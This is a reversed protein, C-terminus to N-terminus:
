SGNLSNIVENFSVGAKSIVIELQIEHIPIMPILIVRVVLVGANFTQATNGSMDVQMASLAQAQVLSTGYANLTNSIARKIQDSNMEQLAYILYDYLSTKIVNLIRRVSFWQLSSKESTLLQQEWLAIGQGTLTRFYNVQAQFMATAQGDDFTYRQKIAGNVVGRNLGAISFAQNAIRDTRACLAAVWGSPPTYVQISNTTDAQLLDPNFLGAYTTNKNLVVNRYEISRDWKQYAAPTDLIGTCDGRRECLSIIAAQTIPDAIGGNIVLNIKYLERNSFEEYAEAIDFSTPASGSTGVGAFSMVTGPGFASVDTSEVGPLLRVNMTDSFVNIQEEMQLQLGGASLKNGLTCVYNEDVTVQQNVVAQIKVNFEDTVPGAAVPSKTADPTINGKDVFTTRYPGNSVVLRMNSATTGKYVLYGTASDVADWTLVNSNGATGSTIVVSATSVETEGYPTMASVGYYVTGIPFPIVSAIDPDNTATVTGVPEAAPTITATYIDAYSGPGRKPYIVGINTWGSDIEATLDFTLPDSMPVAVGKLKGTTDDTMLVVGAVKASDDDSVARKAWLDSGEVFYNLASQITMSIQPNPGGYEAIFDAASTFRKPTLRGQKSVVVIAPLTTSNSTIYQSLNIERIRVDSARNVMQAAM